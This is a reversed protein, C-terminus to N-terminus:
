RQVRPWPSSGTSGDVTVLKRSALRGGFAQSQEAGAASDAVEGRPVPVGFGRMLQM